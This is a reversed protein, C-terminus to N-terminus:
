VIYAHTERTNRSLFAGGCQHALRTAPCLDAAEQTARPRRRVVITMMHPSPVPYATNARSLREEWGFILNSMRPSHALNRGRVCASGHNSRTGMRTRM